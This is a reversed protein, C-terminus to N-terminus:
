WSSPSSPTQTSRAVETGGEGYRDVQYILVSYTANIGADGGIDRVLISALQGVRGGVRGRANHIVTGDTLRLSYIASDGSVTSVSTITGTIIPQQKEKRRSLYNAWSM